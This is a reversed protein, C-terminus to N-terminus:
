CSIMYQRIPWDVYQTQAGLETPVHELVLPSVSSKCIGFEMTDLLSVGAKPTHVMREIVLDKQMHIQELRKRNTRM